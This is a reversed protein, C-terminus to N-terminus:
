YHLVQYWKSDIRLDYNLSQCLLYLPNCDIFAYSATSYRLDISM